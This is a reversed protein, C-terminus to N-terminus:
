EQIKLFYPFKFGKRLKNKNISFVYLKWRERALINYNCRKKMMKSCSSKIRKILPVSYLSYKEEIDYIRHIIYSKTSFYGM